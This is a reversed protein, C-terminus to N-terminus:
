NDSQSYSVKGFVILWFSFNIRWVFDSLKDFPKNFILLLCGFYFKTEECKEKKREKEGDKKWGNKEEEKKENWM